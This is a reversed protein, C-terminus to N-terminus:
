KQSRLKLNASWRLPRALTSEFVLRNALLDVSSAHPRLREFMTVLQECTGSVSFQIITLTYPGVDVQKSPWFREFVLGSDLGAQNVVAIPHLDARPLMARSVQVQSPPIALHGSFAVDVTGSNGSQVQPEGASAIFPVGVLLEKLEEAQKLSPMRAVIAVADDDESIEFSTPSAALLVKCLRIGTEVAHFNTSRGLPDQQRRPVDQAPQANVRGISVAILVCALAICLGLKM